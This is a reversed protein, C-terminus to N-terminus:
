TEQVPHALLPRLSSAETRDVYGAIGPVVGKSTYQHAVYRKWPLPPRAAHPQGDDAGYSALWLGYGAPTQWNLGALFASYSYLLPGVGTDALVKQNFDHAWVRLETPTLHGTDELDLAPRLDHPQVAGLSRIFLAAQMTGSGVAPRAFHYGGVRLGAARAAESRATWTGDIFSNGETVKMWAGAIGAKAVADWHPTANNNSLDILKVTM